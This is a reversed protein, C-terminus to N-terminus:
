WGYLHHVAPIGTGDEGALVWEQFGYDLLPHIWGHEGLVEHIQVLPYSDKTQANLQQFDMCFHLAGDKKQM